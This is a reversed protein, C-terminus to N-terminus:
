LTGGKGQGLAICPHTLPETADCSGRSQGVERINDHRLGTREQGTGLGGFPGPSAARVELWRWGNRGSVFSDSLPRVMDCKGGQRLYLSYVRTLVSLVEIDLGQIVKRKKSAM